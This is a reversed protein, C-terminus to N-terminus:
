AHKMLFQIGNANLTNSAHTTTQSKCCHQTSVFSIKSSAVELVLHQLHLILRQWLGSFRNQALIVAAVVPLRWAESVNRRPPLHGILTGPTKRIRGRWRRSRGTRGIVAARELSVALRRVRRRQHLGSHSIEAAQLVLHLRQVRPGLRRPTFGAGSQTRWESLRRGSSHRVSPWRRRWRYRASWWRSESCAAGVPSACCWQRCWVATLVPSWSEASRRALHLVILIWHMLLPQRSVPLRISHCKATKM